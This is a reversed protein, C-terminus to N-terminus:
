KKLKRNKEREFKEIEKLYYKALIDDGYKEATVLKKKHEEIQKGISEAGKELRKRRKM